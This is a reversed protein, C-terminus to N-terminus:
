DCNQAEQEAIQAEIRAFIEDLDESVILTDRYRPKLFGQAITYDIYRVFGDFFGSVNYLAIPKAMLSLQSMSFADTIEDLTGVGGPLAICADGAEILRLKRDQITHAVQNESVDMLYKENQLFRSLNIGTVHAGGELAAQAVAGMLGRKGAGYVLGLGRRALEGGLKQAARLYKPDAGMASGCFVTVNKFSM